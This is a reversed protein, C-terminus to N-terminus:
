EKGQKETLDLLFAILQELLTCGTEEFSRKVYFTSNETKYERENGKVKAIGTKNEGQM